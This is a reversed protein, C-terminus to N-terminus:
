DAVQEVAIVEWGDEAVFTMHYHTSGGEYTFACDAVYDPDDVQTCGQFEDTSGAGDRSFLVGLADPTM